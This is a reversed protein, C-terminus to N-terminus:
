SRFQDSSMPLQSEYIYQRVQDALRPTGLRALRALLAGWSTDLDSAQEDIIATLAEPELAFLGCLFTDPSQAAIGWPRLARVPFDRLNFTVIIEAQSEVAAALVHRDKPDNKMEDIRREFGRVEADPFFLRQAAVRRRAREDGLPLKVALSRELEALITESWRVAYLGREAARLLTDCISIPVMVCADLVVVQSTM